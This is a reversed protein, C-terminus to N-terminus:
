VGLMWCWADLMLCWVDFVLCWCGVVLVLLCCRVGVDLWVDVLLLDCGAAFAINLYTLLTMHTSGIM